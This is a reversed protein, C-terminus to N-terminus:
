DKPVTIDLRADISSDISSDARFLAVSGNGATPGHGLSLHEFDDMVEPPYQVRDLIEISIIAEIARYEGESKADYEIEVSGIGEIDPLFTPDTLLAALVSDIEADLDDDLEEDTGAVRILSVVVTRERIFRPEGTRPDGDAQYKGKRLYVRAQATGDAVVPAYRSPAVNGGGVGAGVLRSVTM